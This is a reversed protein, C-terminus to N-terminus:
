LKSQAWEVVPSESHSDSDSQAPALLSGDSRALGADANAIKLLVSFENGDEGGRRTRTYAISAGYRECLERCIYLGLGSSRSESSFFPEFLHAEVGAELAVGDSWVMVCFQDASHATEVRMAGNRESSFRRANDLLNVMVQRLHEAEFRVCEDSGLFVQLRHTSQTQTVWDGCVNLLCDNIAVLAEHNQHGPGNVRSVSLVEDVIRGLRRSNDKIIGSLRKDAPASLGEGLLANAQSIAALPNRIEHAVAASMRGMAALKETRVQAEIEHLDELFIVCLSPLMENVAQALRTKVQLRRTVAGAHQLVLTTNQDGNVFSQATLNALEHWAVNGALVFPASRGTSGAPELMRQAAPNLSRVVGNADVMLVGDTLADIVLQNVQTQMRAMSVSVRATAEESALRVAMSHALLALGFFGLGYIGAQLVRPTLDGSFASAFWWADVLLFLSVAAATAMSLLGSGLIAATLVPVTFLPAFNLGAFQAAHLLAFVLVDVGISQPWQGELEKRTALPAAFWRTYACLTAYASCCVAMATLGTGGGGGGIVLASLGVLAVALAVRASMVTEWMRLYNPLAPNSALPAETLQVGPM